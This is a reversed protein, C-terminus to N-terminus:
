NFLRGINKPKVGEAKLISQARELETKTMDQPLVKYLVYRTVNNELYDYRNGDCAKALWVYAEVLDRPVGQGKVYMLGLRHQAYAEGADAAVAFWKAAEAYNQEIGYYGARDGYMYGLDLASPVDGSRAALKYWRLAEDPDKKMPTQQEYYNALMHIAGLGPEDLALERWRASEWEYFRVDEGKFHIEGLLRRAEPLSAYAAKVLWQRSVAADPATGLGEAYMKAVRRMDWSNGGEAALLYLRLAETYDQETLKGEYYYYALASYENLRGERAARLYYERAREFDPEIGMDDRSYIGALSCIADLDGRAAAQELWYVAKAPDVYKAKEEGSFLFGQYCMSLMLQAQVHGKEAAKTFWKISEGQDPETELPNQYMEGLMYQAEVDGKEAAAKVEDFVTVPRGDYFLWELMNRAPGWDEAGQALYAYAKAYDREVGVGRYYLMGLRGATRYSGNEVGALMLELGKPVDQPVQEGRVYMLGLSGMADADGLEIQQELDKIPDWAEAQAMGSFMVLVLLLLCIKRM